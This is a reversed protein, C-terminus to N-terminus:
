TANAVLSLGEPVDSGPARHSDDNPSATPRRRREFRRISTAAVALCGLGFLFGVMVDTPHHLGRYVRAFGVLGTLIVAFFGSVVRTITATACSAVILAIGFFLVTAAATHGSPFSSTSPTMNMRPVAPRPRAVIFTVPLFVTIEIVLALILFAAERRRQRLALFGATVGAFLIVPLTDLAATAVQTISNLTSTRHAAFYNNVHEDWGGVTGNLAHTLLLGIGLLTLALVVYGVLVVGAAARVPHARVAQPRVVNANRGTSDPDLVSRGRPETTTM